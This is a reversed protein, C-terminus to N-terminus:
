RGNSAVIDVATGGDPADGFTIVYAAGDQPHTGGLVHEGNLIQHEADYGAHKARTYYFDIVGQMPVASVFSAARLGCPGADVGAAEMLRARPYIPFAVPLREAWGMGYALSGCTKAGKGQQRALAGLTVPRKAACDACAPGVTPAPANMLSGGAMKKAEAAAAAANGSMVPVAGTVPTGAPRVARANSQGALEPDVLIPDSLAGRIAPDAANNTLTADLQALANGDKDGGCASLFLPLPLLWASIGAKMVANLRLFRFAMANEKV